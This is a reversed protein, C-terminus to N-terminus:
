SLAEDIQALIKGAEALGKKQHGHELSKRNAAEFARWDAKTKCTEAKKKVETLYPLLKGAPLAENYPVLWPSPGDPAGPGPDGDEYLAPADDPEPEPDTASSTDDEQDDQAALAATQADMVSERADGVVGAEIIASVTGANAQIFAKAAEVDGMHQLTSCYASVYDAPSKTEFAVEGDANVLIFESPLVPGEAEDDAPQHAIQPAGTAQERIQESTVVPQAEITAGITQGDMEEATPGGDTEEPFAARLAAAEACKDLQGFPRRKWMANPSGDKVSAFTELWYVRPGPFPVRQGNMMRYVTVQGWEPFVMRITGVQQETTPGFETAERGAYAGTRFATTRLESIGPWVTEVMARKESDWVSVIHVPRKFPDLNRARCYSLAMIVSNPTKAGPFISEVLAKWSAKDIGFREQVGQVYPLRPKDITVIEGSVPLNGANAPAPAPQNM